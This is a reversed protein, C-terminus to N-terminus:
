LEKITYIAGGLGPVPGGGGAPAAGTFRVLVTGNTRQPEKTGHWVLAASIGGAGGAGAGGQGGAAGMGGGCGFNPRTAAGGDAGSAGAQGDTGAAGPRPLGGRLLCGSLVVETQHVVLALSSGGAGGGRGGAGGCGGAGGGGGRSANPSGPTQSGHGGAAGGGPNGPLGDEGAPAEWGEATIRAALSAGAKGPEGPRGNPDGSCDALPVGGLPAPAGPQGKGADGAGVPGGNGGASSGVLCTGSTGGLGPSTGANGGVGASPPTYTNPPAPVAIGGASADLTVRTMTVKACSVVAAAVSASGGAPTDLGSLSLDTLYVEGGLRLLNLTPAPEAPPPAGTIRVTQTGAAAAEANKKADYAWVGGECSFGGHVSIASPFVLSEPYTGACVFIRPRHQSVAKALAAGLTQLPSARTGVGSAPAAASVFLDADTVCKEVNRGPDRSEALSCGPPPAADIVRGAADDVEGAESADAVSADVAGAEAVSADPASPKLEWDLAFCGSALVAALLGLRPAAWRGLGHEHPARTSPSPRM